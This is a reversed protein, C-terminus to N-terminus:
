LDEESIVHLGKKKLYETAIGDGKTVNGSFTGDYIQGVGCAPSRQKLIGKTINYMKAIKYAEEAGRIFVDTIDTGKENFVRRQANVESKPRPVSGGGLQEPCVPILIEKKALALVKKNPKSKGDYRCRIGLLCASCIRM